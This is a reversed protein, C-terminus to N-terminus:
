SEDTLIIFEISTKSKIKDMGLWVESSETDVYSEVIYKSENSRVYNLVAQVIADTTPTPSYVIAQGVSKIVKNMDQPDSTVRSVPTLIHHWSYYITLRLRGNDKVDIRISTHYSTDTLISTTAVMGTDTCLEIIAKALSMYDMHQSGNRPGSLNQDINAIDGSTETIM